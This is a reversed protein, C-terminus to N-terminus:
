PRQYDRGGGGGSRPAKERAENVKIARGGVDKNNLDTIAKDADEPKDMTVFAFGKSRGSDRDMIVKAEVVTGISGFLATLDEETTTYPINGVYLKKSM